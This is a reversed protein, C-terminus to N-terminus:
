SVWLLKWGPLLRVAGPRQERISREQSIPTLETLLLPFSRIGCGFSIEPMNRQTLMVETSTGSSVPAAQPTITGLGRESGAASKRGQPSSTTKPWQFSSSSNDRSPEAPEWLGAAVPLLELHVPEKGESICQNEVSSRKKSANFTDDKSSQLSPVGIVRRLKAENWRIIGMSPSIIGMSSIDGSHLMWKIFTKGRAEGAPPVNSTVSTGSQCLAPPLM